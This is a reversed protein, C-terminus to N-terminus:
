SRGEEPMSLLRDATSLLAKPISDCRTADVGEDALIGELKIMERFSLSQIMGALAKLKNDRKDSATPDIRRTTM